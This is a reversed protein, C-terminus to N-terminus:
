KQSSHKAYHMWGEHEVWRTTGLKRRADQTTSRPDKTLLRAHPCLTYVTIISTVSARLIVVTGVRGCMSATRESAVCTRGCVHCWHKAATVTRASSRLDNRPVTSYHMDDRRPQSPRALSPDSSRARWSNISSIQVGVCTSIIIYHNTLWIRLSERPVKEIKVKDPIVQGIRSSKYSTPFHCADNDRSSGPRSIAVIQDLLIFDM